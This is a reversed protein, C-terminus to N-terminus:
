SSAVRNLRPAHTLAADLMERAFEESGASRAILLAGINLASTALARSRDGGNGATHVDVMRELLDRYRAKLEAGGRAVEAPLAVLPCHGAVDDLHADSLYAEITQASIAEPSASEDIDVSPWRDVPKCQSYHDIAAVLLAEKNPFHNYFGGRTLGADAMIDDISVELFGRRNFAARAAEVIRDRTQAKHDKTYPM